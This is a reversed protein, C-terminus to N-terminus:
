ATLGRFQDKLACCRFKAAIAAVWFLQEPTREMREEGKEPHDLARNTIGVDDSIGVEDAIGVEEATCM